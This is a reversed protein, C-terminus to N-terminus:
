LRVEKLNFIFIPNLSKTTNYFCLRSSLAHILLRVNVPLSGFRNEFKDQAVEEGNWYNREQCQPNNFTIFVNNTKHTKKSKHCDAQIMTFAVSRGPACLSTIGREIIMGRKVYSLWQIRRSNTACSIIKILRAFVLSNLKIM